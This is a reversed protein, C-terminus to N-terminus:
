KLNFFGRIIVAIFGGITGSGISLSTDLRKRRELKTIRKNQEKEQENFKSQCETVRCSCQNLIKEQINQTHEQGKYLYWLQTSSDAKKFEEENIKGIDFGNM